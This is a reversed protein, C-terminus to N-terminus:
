RIVLTPSAPYAACLYLTIGLRNATAVGQVLHCTCFSYNGARAAMRVAPLAV